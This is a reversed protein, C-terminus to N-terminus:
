KCGKVFGAIIMEYEPTIDGLKRASSILAAHFGLGKIVTSEELWGAFCAFTNDRLSIEM